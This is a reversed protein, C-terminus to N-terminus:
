FSYITRRKGMLNNEPIVSGNEYMSITKSPVNLKGALEKQTLKKNVRGQRILGSITITIKKHTFTEEHSDLVKREGLM